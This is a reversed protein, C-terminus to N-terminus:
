SFLDFEASMTSGEEDPEQELRTTGAMPLFNISLPGAKFGRQYLAIAALRRNRRLWASQPDREFITISNLFAGIAKDWRRMERDRIYVVDFARKCLMEFDKTLDRVDWVQNEHGPASYGVVLDVDSNVDQRNRAFSGSLGIWVIEPHGRRDLVKHIIDKIDDVTQPYPPQQAFEM